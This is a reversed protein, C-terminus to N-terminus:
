AARKIPKLKAIKTAEVSHLADYMDVALQLRMWTVARVRLVRELRMATDATVGRKGNLIENLRVRGMGLADALQQQTLNLEPLIDERLIEGPTAPRRHKPIM